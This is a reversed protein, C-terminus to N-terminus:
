KARSPRPRPSRTRAAPRADDDDPLVERCRDILFGRLARVAPRLQSRDAGLLYLPAPEGQWERCLAVLRGERIDGSVDLLSKYAIGEGLLALKHVADGDNCLFSGGVKVEVQRGDRRFAWRNHPRENLMFCLCNHRVLDSPSAPEGHRRVYAPSACLVRVNGPAVPLPIMSSDQLEGYRLVVDVQERYVGALRDSVQLRLQVDPHRRRFECLWGLVLNRGLDSPVSLQIRGRLRGSGDAVDEGAALILALGAECGELYREGERTLRLNRTSRAFLKVGLDREVRKMAASAAQPTMDMARAAEAFSSCRAARVFFQLDRLSNM